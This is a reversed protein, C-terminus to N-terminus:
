IAVTTQSTGYTVQAVGRGTRRVTVKAGQVYDGLALPTRAGITLYVCGCYDCYASVKETIEDYGLLDVPVRWVWDWLGLCGIVIAFLILLAVDGAHMPDIPPM